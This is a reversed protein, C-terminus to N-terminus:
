CVSKPISVCKPMWRSQSIVGVDEVSHAHIHTYTHMHKYTHTDSRSYKCTKQWAAYNMPRDTVPSSLITACYHSKSLFTGVWLELTLVCVCM